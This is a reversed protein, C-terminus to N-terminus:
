RALTAPERPPPQLSASATDTKGDLALSLKLNNRLMQNEPEAILAKRYLAQAEDHRGENDLIVGKANLARMDNPAVLLVNDLAELAEHPRKQALLAQTLGIVADVNGPEQKLAERLADEDGDRDVARAIRERM